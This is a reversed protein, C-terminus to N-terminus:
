SGSKGSFNISYLFAQGMRQCCSYPRWLAFAQNGDQPTYHQGDPFAACSNSLSPSLRQWTHNLTGTNEKVEGPPWYGSQAIGNLAQYVHPQGFRTIIDAVRQAVVASAKDDDVQSVFGSRPYLNGWMNARIQSGLERMGPVLAEPYFMEPLGSRWALSDLTSVFYPNLSTAATPCSYGPISGGIVTTAPHGIADAYKFKINNKRRGPDKIDGANGGGAPAGPSLANDVSGSMGSVFAMEKWPNGNPATYTSVVVEPIFHKVKVSPEVSCGLPTCLLWYCMGTVQWNICSQSAASSIIRATDIAFATTPLAGAVVSFIMRLNLPM